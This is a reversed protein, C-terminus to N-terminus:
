MMRKRRSGISYWYLAISGWVMAVVVLLLERNM